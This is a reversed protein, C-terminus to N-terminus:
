FEKFVRALSFGPADIDLNLFYGFPTQSVSFDREKLWEEIEDLFSKTFEPSAKSDSLHAFSHLIIHEPENKKKKWKLFNRLSKAVSKKNEEDKEEVHIFATQVNEFSSGEKVEQAEDLTKITPQYGFRNCYILLVKM